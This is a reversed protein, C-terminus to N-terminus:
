RKGGMPYKGARYDRLLRVVDRDEEMFRKGHRTPKTIHVKKRSRERIFM